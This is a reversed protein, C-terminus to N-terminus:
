NGRNVHCGKTRAECGNKPDGDLDCHGPICFVMRCTGGVCSGEGNAAACGVGCAGCHKPDNALVAECANAANGDCDASGAPCNQLQGTSERATTEPRPSGKAASEASSTLPSRSACSGLGLLLAGAVLASSVLRAFANVRSLGALGRAAM